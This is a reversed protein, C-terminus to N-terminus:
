QLYGRELDWIIRTGPPMEPVDGDNCEPCPAGAGCTCGDDNWPKDMHNECVWMEGQCVPCIKNDNTM